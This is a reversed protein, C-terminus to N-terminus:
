LWPWQSDRGAEVLGITSFSQDSLGGMYLRNPAQAGSGVRYGALNWVFLPTAAPIAGFPSSGSHQEDTLIIVRDHGKFHQRVAEATSTGGLNSFQTDVTKLVSQGRRLDIESSTSGFQVLTADEARLALATGFLAATDAYTMQTKQSQAWYMSGSRDVLILTRGKLSPVNALSADLAKELPYAFRLGNIARYASLFRFPLQRSKAVQEPDAIRNAVVALVAENVGAEEFNRLNRLLAMYGMTPIIAEWAKADLGGKGFSSGVNEWTLGASRLEDSANPGLILARKEETSLGLAWARRNLLKLSEDPKASSDHRRDMAFKFLASQLADKPTPHVLKIVDAFSFGKSDGDYKGLSFETYTKVAGDAIGRKVGIPLKRGFNAFWYALAEGPEDARLIANSVLKRVGPIGADNLAKAANLAVIISASRMNGENRLWGVLGTIWELDAVAVQGSLAAIRYLRDAGSEYFTDEGGFESVVALFLESKADRAAGVGGNHTPAYIATTQIPSFGTRARATATNFKSMDNM